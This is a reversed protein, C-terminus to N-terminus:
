YQSRESYIAVPVLSDKQKKLHMFDNSKKRLLKKKYANLLNWLSLKKLDKFAPERSLYSTGNFSSIVYTLNDM